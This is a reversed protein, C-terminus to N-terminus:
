DVYRWEGTEFNYVRRGFPPIECWTLRRPEAGYTFENDVLCYKTRPISSLYRPVLDDLFQPYDGKEERYQECAQILRASNGKAIRYQLSYNAVALVLTVVPVIVRAAAVQWRSRDYTARVVAIVFWLPCVLASFIYSGDLIVDIILLTAACVFTGRMAFLWDRVGSSRMEAVSMVM